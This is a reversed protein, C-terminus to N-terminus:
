NNSISYSNVTSWSYYVDYAASNGLSTNGYFYMYDVFDGGELGDANTLTTNYQIYMSASITELAGWDDFNKMGSRYVQLYYIERLKGFDTECQGYYYGGYYGDYGHACYSLYLSGGVTELDTFVLDVDGGYPTQGSYGRYGFGYGNQELSLTGSITTLSGLDVSVNGGDGYTAYGNNSVNVSSNGISELAGASLTADGAYCHHTYSGPNCYGNYRFELTGNASRLASLDVEVDGSTSGNGISSGYGNYYFSLSGGLTELASLDVDVDGPSDSSNYSRGNYRVQLSSGISTLSPASVNVDGGYYGNVYQVQFGGGVQELAAFDVDIDTGDGYYSLYTLAVTGDIQEIKSVDLDFEDAHYGVEYLYFDGGVSVLESLDVEDIYDSYYVRFAGGVEALNALDLRDVSDLYELQFGGGVSELNDFEVEEISGWSADSVMVSGGVATLTSAEIADTPGNYTWVFDGDLDGFEPWGFDDLDYNYAVTFDGTLPTELGSLDFSTLDENYLYLGGLETLNDLDVSQLGNDVLYLDGLLIELNGLDDLSTTESYWLGWDGDVQVIDSHDPLTLVPNDYFIVDGEVTNIGAWSVTTLEDNEVLVLGGLSTATDLDLAGISPNNNLLVQGITLAGSVDVNGLRDNSYLSLDGLETVSSLDLGELADNGSFELAGLTLLSPLEVTSLSANSTSYLLGLGTVAPLELTELAPLDSVVLGLAVQLSSLDLSELASGYSIDLLGAEVLSSFGVATTEDYLVVEIDGDVLTLAPMEVVPANPLDVVLSGYIEEVCAIASLDTLGHGALTLTGYVTGGYNECFREAGEPSTITIDGYFDGSTTDDVCVSEDEIAGDCDNDLGDCIEAAGPWTDRDVDDCDGPSTDYGEPRECARLTVLSGAFGDGDLDAYFTTTALVNGDDDDALGNCDNDLGDCIEAAGPYVAPDDDDCDYLDPSGDADSDKAFCQNADDNWVFGSPCTGAIPGDCGMLAILSIM